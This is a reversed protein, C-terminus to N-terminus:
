SISGKHGGEGAASDGGPVGDLFVLEEYHMIGDRWLM